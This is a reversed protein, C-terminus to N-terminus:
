SRVWTAVGEDLRLEADAPEAAEPDHTAVVVVAGATAAARLTALVLQRNAADLESTPEDVLLVRARSALMVAIAARQQQGGSLEEPLHGGEEGLGVSVLAAAARERVETPPVGQGLLGVVVNEEATLTSVLAGGQPMLAIGLRSAQQRGTVEEGALSVSGSTPRVAGALAWLLTSKGSGSSGTVAVMTGPLLTLDLARLGIRDAYRVEVGTADLSGGSQTQATM